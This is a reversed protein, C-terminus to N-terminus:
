EAVKILRDVDVPVLSNKKWSKITKKYEDPVMEPELLAAMLQEANERIEIVEESKCSVLTLVSNWPWWHLLEEGFNDANKTYLDYIWQTYDDQDIVEAVLRAGCEECFKPTRKKKKLAFDCCEKPYQTAELNYSNDSLYKQFLSSALHKLAAKADTFAVGSENELLLPAIAGSEVYGMYLAIFRIM